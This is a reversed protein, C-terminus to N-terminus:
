QRWIREFVFLLMWCKKLEEKKAFIGSCPLSIKTNCYRLSFHSSFSKEDLFKLCFYVKATVKQKKQGWVAKLIIPTTIIIVTFNFGIASSPLRMLQALVRKSRKVKKLDSNQVFLM